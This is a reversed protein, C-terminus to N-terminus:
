TTRPPEISPMDLASPCRRGCPRPKSKEVVAPRTPSRGRDAELVAFAIRREAVRKPGCRV